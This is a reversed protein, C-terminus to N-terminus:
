SAVLGLCPVRRVLSWVEAPGHTRYLSLSDIMISGKPTETATHMAARTTEPVNGYFLSLHPRYPEDGGVEWLAEARERLHLLAPTPEVEVYFTRFFREESRLEKFTLTLPPCTRALTTVGDILSSEDANLPGLLTIHPAFVPGRYTKALLRITDELERQVMGSPELFLHYGVTESSRPDTMDVQDKM